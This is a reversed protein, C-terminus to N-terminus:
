KLQDEKPHWRRNAADQAIRKRREPSLTRARAPGGKLGGRSGLRRAGIEAKSAVGEEYGLSFIELCLQRLSNKFDAERRTGFPKFRNCFDTFLASEQIDNIGLSKRARKVNFPNSM